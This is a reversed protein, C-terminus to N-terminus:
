GRHGAAKLNFRRLAREIGIKESRSFGLAQHGPAVLREGELGSAALDVVQQPGVAIDRVRAAVGEQKHLSGPALWRRFGDRQSEGAVRNAVKM